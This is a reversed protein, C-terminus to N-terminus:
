NMLMENESKTMFLIELYRLLFVVIVNYTLDQLDDATLNNDDFLVCYKTPRAVGQISQHSCLFFHSEDPRIITTDVVTGPPVNNFKDRPIIKNDQPFFRTHHRKQVIIVTLKIDIKENGQRVDTCAETIAVKERAMVEDFQSDSVGDRYYIIKQPLTGRNEKRFFELHERVIRRFDSIIEGHQLHWATNYHFGNRDYSASVGVVSFRFIVCVILDM